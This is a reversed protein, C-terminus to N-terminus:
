EAFLEKALEIGLEERAQELLVEFSMNTLIKGRKLVFGGGIDMREDSLRLNGKYGPGLDRNVAKVLKQDIASENKDVIVEEDGTEVAVSMLKAMLGGYKEQAMAELQKGAQAFVEDMIRTKEALYEKANAMRAGALIRQRKDEAAKEAMVGSEQRYTSLEEDLGAQEKKRSEAAEARVKEAEAEAESLIKEIVKESEM